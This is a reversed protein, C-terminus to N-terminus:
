LPGQRDVVASRRVGAASLSWVAVHGPPRQVPLVYYGCVADHTLSLISAIYPPCSNRMRIKLSKEILIVIMDDLSPKINM